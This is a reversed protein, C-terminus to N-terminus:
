PNVMHQWIPWKEPAVNLPQYNGNVGGTNDINKWLSTNCTGGFVNSDSKM